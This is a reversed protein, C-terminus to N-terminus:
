LTDHAVEIIKWRNDSLYGKAFSCLPSGIILYKYKYSHKKFNELKKELENLENANKILFRSKQKTLFIVNYFKKEDVGSFIEIKKRSKLLSLDIHELSKLVINKSSLFDVVTKM